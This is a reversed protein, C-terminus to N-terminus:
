DSLGDRVEMLERIEDAAEGIATLADFEVSGIGDVLDRLVDEITRPKVHRCAQCLHTAGNAVDWVSWAGDTLEYSHVIFNRAFGDHSLEDGIKVPVGDMDCPRPMYREAIEAEIEDAIDLGEVKLEGSNPTYLSKVWKRLKEISEIM